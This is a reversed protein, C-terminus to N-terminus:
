VDEMLRSMGNFTIYSENNLIANKTDNTYNAQLLTILLNNYYIIIEEISPQHNKIYNKRDDRSSTVISHDGIIQGIIQQKNESQSQKIYEKFVFFM